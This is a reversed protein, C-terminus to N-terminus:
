DKRLVRLFDAPARQPTDQPSPLLWPLAPGSQLAQPQNGPDAAPLQYIILPQPLAQPQRQAPDAGARALILYGLAAFGLMGVLGLACATLVGALGLWAMAQAQTAAAQAQAIDARATMTAPENIAAVLAVGVLGALILVFVLAIFQKM